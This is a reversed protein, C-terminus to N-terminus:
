NVKFIYITQNANKPNLRFLIDDIFGPTITTEYEMKPFLTKVDAIRRVLNKDEFFLVYDPYNKLVM